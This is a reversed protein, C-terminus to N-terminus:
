YVKILIGFRVKDLKLTKGQLYLQFFYYRITLFRVHFIISFLNLLQVILKKQFNLTTYQLLYYKFRLNRFYM